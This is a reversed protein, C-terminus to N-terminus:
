LFQPVHAELYAMWVVRTGRAAPHDLLREALALRESAALGAQEPPLRPEPHPKGGLEARLANIANEDDGLVQWIRKSLPEWPQGQFEALAAFLALTKTERDRDSKQIARKLDNWSARLVGPDSLCERLASESQGLKTRLLAQLARERDRHLDARVSDLQALPAAIGPALHTAVRHPLGNFTRTIDELLSVWNKWRANATWQHDDEVWARLEDLAVVPDLVARWPAPALWRHILDHLRDVLYEDGM